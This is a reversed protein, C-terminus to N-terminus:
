HLNRWRTTLNTVLAILAVQHGFNSGISIANGTPWLFWNQHYWRTTLNQVLVPPVVYLQGFQALALPMRNLQLSLELKLSYVRPGNHRQCHKSPPPLDAGGGSAPRLLTLKIFGSEPNTISVLELLSYSGTVIIAELSSQFAPQIPFHQFSRILIIFWSPYSTGTM